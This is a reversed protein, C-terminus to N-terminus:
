LYEFPEKKKELMESMVQLNEGQQQLNELAIDLHEQVDILAKALDKLTTKPAKDLGPLRTDLADEIQRVLELKTIPAEGTKTLYTKTVYVGEKVLKSIISKKPRNLITMLKEVTEICPNETYIDIMKKTQKETYSSPM